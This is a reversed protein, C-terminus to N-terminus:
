VLLPFLEWCYCGSLELDGTFDFVDECTVRVFLEEGVRFEWTTLGMEEFTLQYSHIVRTGNEWSSHISNVRIINFLYLRSILLPFEWGKGKKRL